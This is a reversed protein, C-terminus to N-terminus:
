VFQQGLEGFQGMQCDFRGIDLWSARSGVPATVPGRRKRVTRMNILM